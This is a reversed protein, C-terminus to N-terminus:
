VKWEEKLTKYSFIEQEDEKQWHWDLIARGVWIRVTSLNGPLENYNLKSFESFTGNVLIENGGKVRFMYSFFGTYSGSLYDEFYNGDGFSKLAIPHFFQFAEIQISGNKNKPNQKITKVFNEEPRLLRPDYFLTQKVDAHKAPQLPVLDNKEFFQEGVNATYKREIWQMDVLFRREFYIHEKLIPRKRVSPWNFIIDRRLLQEVQLKFLISDPKADPKARSAPRKRFIQEVENPCESFLSFSM